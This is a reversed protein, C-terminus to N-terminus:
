SNEGNDLDDDCERSKSEEIQRLTEKINSFMNKSKRNSGKRMRSLMSEFFEAQSCTKWYNPGYEKNIKAECQICYLKKGANVRALFKKHENCICCVEDDDNM